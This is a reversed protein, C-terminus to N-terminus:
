KMILRYKEGAAREISVKSFFEQATIYAHSLVIGLDLWHSGGIMNAKTWIYLDGNQVNFRWPQRNMSSPALRCSELIQLLREDEPLPGEVLSELEKRRGMGTLIDNLTVKGSDEKGLIIGAPSGEERIGANWCSGLGMKTVELVIIEGQFGYEVLCNPKAPCPAFIVGSGKNLDKITWKLHLSHLTPLERFFNMLREKEDASLNYDLFKRTSHRMRITEIIM